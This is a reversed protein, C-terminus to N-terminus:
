PNRNRRSLYDRLAQTVLESVGLRHQQAYRQVADALDVPLRYTRRVWDPHRGASRREPLLEEIPPAGGGSGIWDLPNSGMHKGRPAAPPEAVTTPLATEAMRRYRETWDLPNVALRPASRSRIM